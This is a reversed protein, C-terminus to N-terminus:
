TSKTSNDGLWTASQSLTEQGELGFSRHGAQTINGSPWRPQTSQLSATFCSDWTTLRVYVLYLHCQPNEQAWATIFSIVSLSPNVTAVRAVCVRPHVVRTSTSTCPEWQILFAWNLEVSVSDNTSTRTTTIQVALHSLNNVVQRAM